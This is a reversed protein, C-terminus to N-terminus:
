QKRISISGNLATLKLSADGGTGLTAVISKVPGSSLNETLVKFPIDSNFSGPSFTASFKCASNHPISLRISGNTTGLGYSGGSLIEGSYAISGSITGVDIQRYELRQLSIAGSNTKAKFIDGIASPGAEFVVINGTTSELALAGQSNAVTIDGEYTSAVIGATVNRLSIDGGINKLNAKKVTDVSTTTEQAYVNITANVPVDIEIDEGWLCDPFAKNVKQPDLGVAQVWVPKQDQRNKELVKFAIKSGDKVFVRIESRNWGTIKLNGQVVCLKINVNTDVAISRETTDGGFMSLHRAPRSAARGPVPPAPKVAPVPAGQATAPVHSVAFVAAALLCLLLNEVIKNM